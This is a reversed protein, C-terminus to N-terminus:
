SSLWSLRSKLAVAATTITENAAFTDNSPIRVDNRSEDHHGDTSTVSNTGTSVNYNTHLESIGAIGTAAHSLTAASYTGSTASTAPNGIVNGITGATNSEFTLVVDPGTSTNDSTLSTAGYSLPLTGNNGTADLASLTISASLGEGGTGVDKATFTLM